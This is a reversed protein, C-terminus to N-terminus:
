PLKTTGGARGAAARRGAPRGVVQRKERELRYRKFAVSRPRKFAVSRLLTAAVEFTVTQLSVRAM